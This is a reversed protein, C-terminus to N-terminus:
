VTRVPDRILVIHKTSAAWSALDVGPVAAHKSMHKCFLLPTPSPGLVVDRVVQM